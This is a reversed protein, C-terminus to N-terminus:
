YFFIVLSVLEYDGFISRTKLVKNSVEFWPIENSFPNNSSNRIYEITVLFHFRCFSCVGDSIKM